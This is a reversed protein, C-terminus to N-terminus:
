FAGAFMNVTRAPRRPAVHELASSRHQLGALVQSFRPRTHDMDPQRQLRHNRVVRGIGGLIARLRPANRFLDTTVERDHRGWYVCHSMLVGNAVRPEGNVPAYHDEVQHWNGRWLPAFRERNKAKLARHALVRWDTPLAM